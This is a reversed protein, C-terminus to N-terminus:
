ASVFGPLIGNVGEVVKGWSNFDGCQDMVELCQRRAEVDELEEVRKRTETFKKMLQIIRLKGPNVALRKSAYDETWGYVGPFPNDITHGHRNPTPRQCIERASLSHRILELTESSIHPSLIEEIEPFHRRLQTPPESTWDTGVVLAVGLTALSYIPLKSLVHPVDTRQFNFEKTFLTYRIGRLASEDTVGKGAMMLVEKRVIERGHVMRAANWTKLEESFADAVLKRTMKAIPLGSTDIHKWTPPRTPGAPNPIMEYRGTRSGLLTSVTMIECLDADTLDESICGSSFAIAPDPETIDGLLILRTLIRFQRKSNSFLKTSSVLPAAAVLFTEPATTLVSELFQEVPHLALLPDFSDKVADLNDKGVLAEALERPSVFRDYLVEKGLILCHSVYNSFAGVDGGSIEGFLDRLLNKVSSAKRDRHLFGIIGAVLKSPADAPNLGTEARLSKVVSAAPAPGSERISALICRIVEWTAPSITFKKALDDWDCGRGPEILHLLSSAQIGAGLSPFINLGGSVLYSQLVGYLSPLYTLTKYARTLVPDNPHALIVASTHDLATLPDKFVDGFGISSRLSAAAAASLVSARSLCKVRSSWADAFDEAGTLPNKPFHLDVLRVMCLQLVLEMWPKLDELTKPTTQLDSLVSLATELTVICQVPSGVAALEGEEEQSNVTTVTVSSVVADPLPMPENNMKLLIDLMSIESAIAVEDISGKFPMRLADRLLINYAEMVSPDVLEGRGVTKLMSLVFLRVANVIVDPNVGRIRKGSRKGSFRDCTTELLGLMATSLGTSSPQKHNFIEERRTPDKELPEFTEGDIHIYNFGHLGSSMTEVIAPDIYGAVSTQQLLNMIIELGSSLDTSSTSKPQLILGGSLVAAQQYWISNISSGFLIPVLTVNMTEVVMNLLKFVDVDEYGKGRLWDKEYEATNSPGISVHHPTDDTVVFCLVNDHPEFRHMLEVVGAVVNEPGDAGSANVTPMGPPRCIRINEVYSVLESSKLSPSSFTVYCDADETFTGVYLKVGERETQCFRSVMQKVAHLQSGMSGTIDLMFVVHLLNKRAGAGTSTSPDSASIGIASATPSIDIGM